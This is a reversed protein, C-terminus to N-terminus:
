KGNKENWEYATKIISLIDHKPHYNLLNKAFTIDAILSDPDGERRPKVSYEVPLKLEEKDNVKKLEEKKYISTNYALLLCLALPDFVTILLVIFWKVTTNLDTHFADAVFKFTLIHNM